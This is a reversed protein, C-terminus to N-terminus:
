VGCLKSESFLKKVITYQPISVGAEVKTSECNNRGIRGEVQCSLGDIEDSHFSLPM